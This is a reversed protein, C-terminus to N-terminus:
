KKFPNQGFTTNNQNAGSQTNIQSPSVYANSQGASPKAQEDPMEVLPARGAMRYIFEILSRLEYKTEPQLPRKMIHHYQLAGQDFIMDHRCVRRNLENRDQTVRTLQEQLKQKAEEEKALATRHEEILQKKEKELTIQQDRLKIQMIRSTEITQKQDLFNDYTFEPDCHQPLGMPSALGSVIRRKLPPAISMADNDSPGNM